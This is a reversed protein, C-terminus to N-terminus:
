RWRGPTNRYNRHSSVRRSSQAAFEHTYRSTTQRHPASYSRTSYSVRQRDNCGFFEASAPTAGVSWVFVLAVLGLGIRLM